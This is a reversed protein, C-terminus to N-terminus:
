VGDKKEEEAKNMADKVSDPLLKIIQFSVLHYVAKIWLHNPYANSLNRLGNRFYYYLAIWTLVQVAYVSKENHAMLDMIMKLIYTIGVIIFLEVLSDKFKKKKFNRWNKLSVDDARMGALINFAFAAFLAYMFTITSDFYAAAMSFLSILITQLSGMFPMKDIIREM